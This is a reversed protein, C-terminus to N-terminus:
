TPDGAGFNKPFERCTSIQNLRDIEVTGGGVASDLM